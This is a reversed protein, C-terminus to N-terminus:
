PRPGRQERHAWLQEIVDLSVALPEAPRPVRQPEDGHSARREGTSRSRPPTRARGCRGITSESTRWGSRSRAGTTTGTACHSARRGWTTTPSSGSTEMRMHLFDHQVGRPRDAPRPAPDGGRAAIPMTAFRLRLPQGAGRDFGRGARARGRAGLGRGGARVARGAPGARAPRLGREPGDRGHAPRTGLLIQELIVGLAYTKGSGSQGCWFTHRNLKPALLRAPAASESELLTGITLESAM